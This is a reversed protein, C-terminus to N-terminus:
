PSWTGMCRRSIGAPCHMTDSPWLQGSTTRPANQLNGFFTHGGCEGLMFGKAFKHFMTSLNMRVWSWASVFLLSSHATTLIVHSLMEGSTKRGSTSGIDCRTVASRLTLPIRLRYKNSKVSSNLFKLSIHHSPTSHMFSIGSINCYRSKTSVKHYKLSFIFLFKNVLYIYRPNDFLIMVITIIM